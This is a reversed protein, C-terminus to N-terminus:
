VVRKSDEDGHQQVLKYVYSIYKQVFKLKQYDDRLDAGGSGLVWEIVDKSQIEPFVFRLHFYLLSYTMCMSNHSGNQVGTPCIEDPRVLTFHLPPTVDTTPADKKLADNLVRVFDAILEGRAGSNSTSGHSEFHEVKQEHVNILVANIHKGGESWRMFYGIPIISPKETKLVRVVEKTLADLPIIMSLSLTTNRKSPVSDSNQENKRTLKTFEASGIGSTNYYLDFQMQLISTNMNYRSSSQHGYVRPLLRLLRVYMDAADQRSSFVEWYTHTDTTDQSVIDQIFERRRSALDLSFADKVADLIGGTARQRPTYLREVKSIRPFSITHHISESLYRSATETVLDSLRTHVDMNESKKIVNVLVDYVYSEEKLQMHAGLSTLLQSIAHQFGNWFALTRLTDPLVCTHTIADMINASKSKTCVYANTDEDLYAEAFLTDPKYAYSTNKYLSRDPGCRVTWGTVLTNVVNSFNGQLFCMLQLSVLNLASHRHSTCFAYIGGNDSRFFVWHMQSNSYKDGNVDVLHLKCLQNLILCFIDSLNKMIDEEKWYSMVDFEFKVMLIDDFSMFLRDPQDLSNFSVRIGAAIAFEALMLPQILSTSLAEARGLAVSLKEMSGNSVSLQSSKYENMFANYYGVFPETYESQSNRDIYYILGEPRRTYTSILKETNKYNFLCYDDTDHSRSVSNSDFYAHAHAHTEESAKNIKEVQSSFELKIDALLKLRNNTKLWEVFTDLVEQSIRTRATRGVGEVVADPYFGYHEPHLNYYEALEDMDYCEQTYGIGSKFILDGPYRANAVRAKCSADLQVVSKIDSNFSSTNHVDNETNWVGNNENPVERYATTNISNRIRQLM